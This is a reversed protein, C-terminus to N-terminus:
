SEDNEQNNRYNKFYSFIYPLYFEMEETVETIRNRFYNYSIAAPIAVILGVVTTILAEAVGSAVVKVSSSGAAAMSNFSLLLGWVTGLLGMFPAIAATTALYTLGKEMKRQERIFAKELHSNIHEKEVNGTKVLKLGYKIISTLPCDINVPKGKASLHQGCLKNRKGMEKLFLFREVIVYWSFLSLLALMVLDVKGALDCHHWASIWINEMITILKTKKLTGTL